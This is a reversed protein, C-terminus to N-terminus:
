QRVPVRILLAGPLIRAEFRQARIIEGDLHAYTTQRAEFSVTHVLRRHVEPETIHEGKEVKPLLRLARLKRPKDILCLSFLGDRADADPNIRFGGGYTPGISVAAAAYIQGPLPEGNVTVTLFPCDGYHFLLERLSATYYLVEGRMFPLKKMREAAAAVNADLGVGMSNLFYRDNMQAADLAVVQSQVGGLAVDLAAMPDHPLRATEYAYDNGTGCPVVGMVVRKGSALIGSGVELVTGDGGVAIVDRGALAAERALRMGDGPGKTLVLEARGGRLRREIRGRLRKAKGNAGAPNLIVVPPDSAEPASPVDSHSAPLSEPQTM